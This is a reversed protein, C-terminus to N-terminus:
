GQGKVRSRQGIAIGYSSAVDATDGGVVANDGIAISRTNHAKAKNGLAVGASAAVAESGIATADSGLSGAKNGIAVGRDYISTTADTGLAVSNTGRAWAKNGIAVAGFSINAGTDPERAVKAGLGMAISSYHGDAVEADKGIAIANTGQAGDNNVNGGATSNVSFYKVKNDAVTQNLQGFNVADNDNVGNAVGTLTRANGTSNTFDVSTGGTAAGVTIPGTGTDQRVIGTRGNALDAINGTNTAVNTNTDELASNTAALQSGNIADTSDASIKGGAVNKIQRELGTMGVSVQAGTKVDTGDLVSGAFNYTKGGIVVTKESTADNDTQAGAGLAVSGSKTATASVGFAASGVGISTAQTGFATSLAGISQAQVGIAVSAPGATETGIYQKRNVDPINPDNAGNADTYVLDRGAFKKFAENVDGSNLGNNSTGDINRSSASDLDDGGIAISSNGSARVNAGLGVSQDGKTQADYGIAVSQAGQTEGADVKTTANGGIAINNRGSADSGCGIAIDGSSRDAATSPNSTADCVETDISNPGVVAVVQMSFGSAALGTCIATLRMLKTGSSVASSAASGSSVARNSSKGRAKAYEAVAMFCGLSRNWIVKYNRNM